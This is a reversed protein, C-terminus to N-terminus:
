KKSLSRRRLGNFIVFSLILLMLVFSGLLVPLVWSAQKAQYPALDISKEVAPQSIQTTTDITQSVRIRTDTVSIQNGTVLAFDGALRSRLNPVTIAQSAQILGQDSNGLVALIVRDNNWPSHLLELYGVRANAGLRYAVQNNKETAIESGAEFPGPLQDHLEAILPIAGPRGVLILHDESKVTNPIADAFFAKLTILQGNLQDGINTAVVLATKWGILDNKSVIFSTNGLTPHLVFPVPITPLHLMSEPWISMWLGALQPSTCNDTPILDTRVELRNRGPLLAPGPILFKMQNKKEASAESFRFSGIPQDNLLVMLGSRSFNLLASHSFQLEFYADPGAVTGPPTYFFFVSSATGPRNLRDTTSKIGYGLEALTQDVPVAQPIPQAVVNSIIALNPKDAPRIFGTSVAQSAKVVGADTAGSVLLIVKADNWPSLVMQIVGDDPSSGAIDVGTSTIQTPLVVQELIKLSAAKGVLILHNAAREDQTLKGETTLNLIFSNSTLNSLSAGLTLASQIESNTPQDPLVLLASDPWAPDQSFPQPFHSLDTTPAILTHPLILRSEPKIILSLQQHIDCNIGGDLSFNLEYRGDVRRSELARDPIALHVTQDGIQNIQLISIATGNFSITLTGGYAQNTVPAGGALNNYSTSFALDLQAGPSLKWSSPTSFVLTWGDYPGDLFQESKGLQEFTLTNEPPISILTPTAEAPQPTPTPTADQMRQRTFAWSAAVPNVSGIIWSLCLFLSIVTLLIKKNMTTEM